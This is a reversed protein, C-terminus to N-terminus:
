TLSVFLHFYGSQFVVLTNMDCIMYSRHWRHWTYDTDKTRASIKLYLRVTDLILPVSTNQSREYDSNQEGVESTKNRPSPASASCAPSGECGGPRGGDRCLRTGADSPTAVFAVLSLAQRALPFASICFEARHNQWCTLFQM